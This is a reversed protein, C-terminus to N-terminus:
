YLIFIRVRDHRANLDIAPSVGRAHKLDHAYVDTVGQIGYYARVYKERIKVVDKQAM